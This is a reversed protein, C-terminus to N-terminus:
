GVRNEGQWFYKSSCFPVLEYPELDHTTVTPPMNECASLSKVRMHGSLKGRRNQPTRAEFGRARHRVSYHSTRIATACPVSIVSESAPKEPEAHFAISLRRSLAGIGLHPGVQLLGGQM